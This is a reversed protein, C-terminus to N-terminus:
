SWLLALEPEVKHKHWREDQKRYNIADKEFGTYSIEQMDCAIRLSGHRVHTDLVKMGKKAHMSLLGRYIEIPIQLSHVIEEKPDPDQRPKDGNYFSHGQTYGGVLWLYPVIIMQNIMSCYIMMGTNFKGKESPKFQDWIYWGQSKGAIHPWLHKCYNAGFIIQNQSVRFLQNFYQPSPQKFEHRPYNARDKGPIPCFPNVIAIDFSKNPMVKMHHYANGKTVINEIM